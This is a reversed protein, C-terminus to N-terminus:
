GKTHRLHLQGRDLDLDSIELSLASGLRVGSALMLDFLAVDRGTTDREGLAKRIRKQEDESITRPPTRGCLALRILRAPNSRTYGADHSYRFFIRLATRVANVTSAKKAGGGSLTRVTPSALFEALTEHRIDEIEQASGRERMWAALLGLQRRYQRITNAARGDAELQTVYRALAEELKM